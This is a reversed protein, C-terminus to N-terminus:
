DLSLVFSFVCSSEPCLKLCLTFCLSMEILWNLHFCLPEVVRSKLWVRLGFGLSSSCLVFSVSELDPSLVLDWRQVEGESLGEWM